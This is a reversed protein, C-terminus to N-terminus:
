KCNHDFLEKYHVLRRILEVAHERKMYPGLPYIRLAVMPKGTETYIAASSRSLAIGDDQFPVGEQELWNAFQTIYKSNELLLSDNTLEEQYITEPNIGPPYCRVFVDPGFFQENAVHLGASQNKAIEDRCTNGMELAHGLLIRYGEKGLMNMSIWTSLINAASRSTELSYKGPNYAEDNHFLPTMMSSDRRLLKLDDRNKAIFVSSTYPMFGLKHFDVGFSDAYKLTEIKETIKKLQALTKDTFDLPNAGFDYDRFVLFAWGLVSDAHIHPIYDLSYDKVLTDRIEAIEKINDIGMNSTTGAVVNICAIRKGEEIVRRCASTLEQINTTQDLNSGVRVLNDTGIGLWDVATAHCYHSPASEICAIPCSIGKRHSEPDVKTLGIKLGYLNTGTGGFTFIGGSTNADLGALKSIEAVTSIEASLIQGADEGTVANAMLTSTALYASLYPISVTPIINKVMFPHGAKVSGQLNDGLDKLTKAPDSNFDQPLEAESILQDLQPIDKHKPYMPSLGYHAMLGELASTTQKIVEQLNSHDPNLFYRSRLNELQEETRLLERM